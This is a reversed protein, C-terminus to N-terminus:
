EMCIQHKGNKKAQYMLQDAKKLFSDPSHPNEINDFAIGFSASIKISFKEIQNIKEIKMLLRQALSLVGAKNDAQFVIVFEDGSIRSFFDSPRLSERVTDSILMLVKDGIAHGHDDNVKKFGDLDFYICCAPKQNKRSQALLQSLFDMLYARNPLGTLVDQNAMQQLANKSKLINELVLWIYTAIIINFLIICDQYDAIYKFEPNFKVICSLSSIALISALIMYQSGYRYGNGICIWTFIYLYATTEIGLNWFLFFCYINDMTIATVRRIHNLSSWRFIMGIIFLSSLAYLFFILEITHLQKIPLQSNIGGLVLIPGMVLVLLLRVLSQKYEINNANVHSNVFLKNKIISFFNNM